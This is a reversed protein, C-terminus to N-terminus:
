INGLRKFFIELQPRIRQAEAQDGSDLLINMKKNEDFVVRFNVSNVQLLFNKKNNMLVKLMQTEPDNKNLKEAFVQGLSVKPDEPLNLAVTSIAKENSEGSESSAPNRAAAASAGSAGRAGAMEALARNMGNSKYKEAATQTGSSAVQNHNQNDFFEDRAAVASTPAAAPTGMMRGALSNELRTNTLGKSRLSDRAIQQAQEQSAPRKEPLASLRRMIENQVDRLNSDSQDLLDSFDPTSASAGFNNKYYDTNDFSMSNQTNSNRSVKPSSQPTVVKATSPASPAAAPKNFYGPQREPIETQAVMTGDSKPLIGANVLTVRVEPSIEKPNGIFTRLLTNIESNASNALKGEFAEPSKLKKFIKCEFSDEVCKTKGSEIDCLLENTMSIDRNYKQSKYVNFPFTKYEEGALNSIDELVHNGDLVGEKSASACLGLAKANLNFLEDTSALEQEDTVLSPELYEIKSFPNFAFDDNNFSASCLGKSLSEFAAKCSQSIKQDLKKGNENSYLDKKLGQVDQPTLSRFFKVFDNANNSHLALLPHSKIRHKIADIDPVGKEKLSDFLEDLNNFSSNTKSIEQFFRDGFSEELTLNSYHLIDKEPIFCYKAAQERDMLGSNRNELKKSSIIQALESALSSQLKPLENDLLTKVESSCNKFDASEKFKCERISNDFGNGTTQISRLKAIEVLNNTLVKKYEQIAINFFNQKKQNKDTNVANQKASNTVFNEKCTECLHEFRGKKAFLFNRNNFCNPVSVSSIVDQLPNKVGEECPDEQAFIALSLVLPLLYIM